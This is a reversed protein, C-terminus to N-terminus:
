QIFAVNDIWAIHHYNVDDRKTTGNSFNVWCRVQFSSLSSMNTKGSFQSADWELVNWDSTRVAADWSAQDTITVGNLRAPLTANGGKNFLLRPYIKDTGWYMEMSIKTFKDRVAQPFKAAKIDTQFYGSNGWDDTHMDNVMVYESHNVSTQYPNSVISMVSAGAITNGTYEAQFDNNEFSNYVFRDTRAITGLSYVKGSQLNVVNSNFARGTLGSFSLKLDVGQTISAPLVPIYYDGPAFYDGDSSAGCQHPDGEAATVEVAPASDANPTVNFTGSLSGTIASARNFVVVESLDTVDAPVTFKLLACVQKFVLNTNDSVAVAIAKKSNYTGVATGDSTKNLTVGKIVGGDITADASYPFLAYYKDAVAATGSFEAIAGGEETTFKYNTGNAFISIEEGPKFVVDRGEGFATKTLSEPSATFTLQVLQGDTSSQNGEPQAAEKNCSAFLAIAAAFVFITKKM